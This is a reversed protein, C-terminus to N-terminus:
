GGAGPPRLPLDFHIGLTPRCLTDACVLPAQEGPPLALV